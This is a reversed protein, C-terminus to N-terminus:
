FAEDTQYQSFLSSNFSLFYHTESVERRIECDWQDQLFNGLRKIQANRVTYDWESGLDWKYNEKSDAM